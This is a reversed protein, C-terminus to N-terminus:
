CEKEGAARGEDAAPPLAAPSFSHEREASVDRGSSTAPSTRQRSADQVTPRDGPCGDIRTVGAVAGSGKVKYARLTRSALALTSGDFSRHRRLDGPPLVAVRESPKAAAIAATV